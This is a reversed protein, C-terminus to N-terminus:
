ENLYNADHGAGSVLRTYEADVTEAAQQVTEICGEDFLDAEVRMIEELEWEVGERTAAWALEDSVKEVVTQVVSNDYSRLDITFEVKEPIVNIANPSVDVSGVTGVLDTGTNATLHHVAAVTDSTPVM